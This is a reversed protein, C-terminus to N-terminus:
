AEFVEIHREDLSYNIFWQGTLGAQARASNLSEILREVYLQLSNETQAYWAQFADYSGTFSYTKRVNIIAQNSSLFTLNPAISYEAPSVNTTNIQLIVTVTVAYRANEKWGVFLSHFKLETEPVNFLDRQYPFKDIHLTAM